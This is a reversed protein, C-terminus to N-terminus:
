IQKRGLKNSLFTVAVTVTLAVTVIVTVTVTVTVTMTNHNNNHNNNNSKKNNYNWTESPQHWLDVGQLPLLTTVGFMGIGETIGGRQGEFLGPEVM